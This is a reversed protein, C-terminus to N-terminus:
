EHYELIFTLELELETKNFHKASNLITCLIICYAQKVIMLINSYFLKDKLSIDASVAM